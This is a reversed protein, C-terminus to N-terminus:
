RALVRKGESVEWQLGVMVRVMCRDGRRGDRWGGSSEPVEGERVGDGGGHPSYQLSASDGSSLPTALSEDVDNDCGGENEEWMEWKNVRVM